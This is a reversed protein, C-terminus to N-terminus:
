EFQEAQVEKLLRGTEVADFGVPADGLDPVNFSRLMNDYFLPDRQPLLFPRTTSGDESVHSFYPKGYLGDGRKSAFVLWKSDSSWSHYTDSKDSNVKDLPFVEGTALNMMYLECERHNIPFTGYDAVTFLLWRGDPSAKPHCVSGGRASASWLTDAPGGLEGTEPDFPVRVLSYHMQQLGAPLKSYPATCFFVSRGDASFVPFTELVDKRAFAPFTLMRNDDFDAVCLDSATDYVEMRSYQATHMAPIIINTSFVGWRGEPHIEGYVTSSVMDSSRLNLKRLSGGRNLIAGGGEGRIYLMSLSGRGQSHIHCNMCKNGTNRWDSIARTDFNELNREQIELDDWVEFGPEILRYTLYGDIPDPSVLIRWLFSEEGSSTRYSSVVQIESDKAAELLQKWAKEKWVVERGRLTFSLDGARFFTRFRSADSVTYYFNLPAINCPVTVDRYDPFVAAPRFTGEGSARVDRSRGCGSLLLLSLVLLIANGNRM